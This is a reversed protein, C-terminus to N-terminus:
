FRKWHPWFTHGYGVRAGNMTAITDLILRKHEKCPIYELYVRTVVRTHGVYGRNAGPYGM